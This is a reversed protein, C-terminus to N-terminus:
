FVLNPILLRSISNDTSVLFLKFLVTKCYQVRICNKYTSCTSGWILIAYLLHPKILAHYLLTMTKECLYRSLKWLGGVVCSLKNELNEIGTKLSLQNDIFVGLYRCCPIVKILIDDIVPNLKKKSNTPPIILCVTKSLNLTLEDADLM